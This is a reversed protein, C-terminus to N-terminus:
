VDRVEATAAVGTETVVKIREPSATFASVTDQDELVLQEGPRWVDSSQGEVAAREYEAVAVYTGDVVTDTASVHLTTEGTNNLKVVLDDNSDWTASTVNIATTAVADARNRQDERADAVREATNASVTYLSGVAIFLGVFIVLLSAATSLGRATGSRDGHM